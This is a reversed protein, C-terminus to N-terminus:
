WWVRHYPRHKRPDRYYPNLAATSELPREASEEWLLSVTTIAGASGLLALVYPTSNDFGGLVLSSAVLLVAGVGAGFADARLIQTATPHYRMSALALAGAGIGPAILLADTWNKGSVETGSFHVIALLLASYALGWAGGSAILLGQELKMQGGGVTATLWAGLESGVFASWTLASKDTTLLDMFGALFMGGIASNVIGFDAMPHDIYHNSQWWASLGFGLGAGIFTGALIRERSSRDFEFDTAFGQTFLGGAAGMLTHHLIFTLSGPGALFAGYRPKGDLMPRTDTAAAPVEGEPPAEQQVLPPQPTTRIEAGPPPVPSSSPESRPPAEGSESPQAAEEPPPEQSPEAAPEEALPPEAPAQAHAARPLVASLVLVALVVSKRVPSV